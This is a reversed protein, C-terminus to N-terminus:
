LSDRPERGPHPGAGTRTLRDVTWASLPVYVAESLMGAVAEGWGYEPGIAQGIEGLFFFALWVAAYRPWADQFSGRGLHFLGVFAAAVGLKTVLVSAMFRGPADPDPMQAWGLASFVGYFPFPVVFMIVLVVFGAFILRRM